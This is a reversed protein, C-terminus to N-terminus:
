AIKCAIQVGEGGGNKQMYYAISIYLLSVGGGGGWGWGRGRPAYTILPLGGHYTYLLVMASSFDRVKSFSFLFFYLHLASILASVTSVFLVMFMVWGSYSCTRGWRRLDLGQREERGM